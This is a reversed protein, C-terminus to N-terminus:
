FSYTVGLILSFINDEDVIPSNSVENPLFDARATGILTWNDNLPYFANVAAFPIVADGPAYAPRGGLAESASVGWIFASLDASQWAAGASFELGVKGVQTGYGLGLVAEQGDHEGTFEQRFPRRQVFLPQAANAGKGPGNHSVNM